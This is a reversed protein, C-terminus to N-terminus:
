APAEPGTVHHLRRAVLPLGCRPRALRVEGRSRGGLCPDTFLQLGGARRLVLFFCWNAVEEGDGGGGVIVVVM